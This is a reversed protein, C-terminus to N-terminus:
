WEGFEEKCRQTKESASLISPYKFRRIRLRPRFDAVLKEPARFSIGRPRDRSLPKGTWRRRRGQPEPLKDCTM